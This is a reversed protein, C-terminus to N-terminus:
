IFQRSTVAVKITSWWFSILEKKTCVSLHAVCFCSAEPWRWCLPLVIHLIIKGWLKLCTLEKFTIMDIMLFLHTYNKRQRVTLTEEEERVYLRNMEERKTEASIEEIQSDPHLLLKLSWCWSYFGFRFLLLVASYFRHNVILKRSFCYLFFLSNAGQLRLGGPLNCNVYM